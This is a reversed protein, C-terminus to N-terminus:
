EVLTPVCLFSPSVKLSSRLVSLRRNTGHHAQLQQLLAEQDATLREAVVMLQRLERVSSDRCSEANVLRAQMHESRTETRRDGVVM